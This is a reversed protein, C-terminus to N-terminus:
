QVSSCALDPRLAASAFRPGQSRPVLVESLPLSNGASHCFDANQRGLNGSLSSTVAVAPPGRDPSPQPTPSPADSLLASAQSRSVLGKRCNCLPSECLSFQLLLLTNSGILPPEERPPMPNGASHCFDASQPGLNGRLSSSVAM